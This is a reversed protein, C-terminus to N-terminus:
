QNGVSDGDGYLSPYWNTILANILDGAGLGALATANLNSPFSQLPFPLGKYFTTVERSNVLKTTQVNITLGGIVFGAVTATVTRKAGGIVAESTFPKKNIIHDLLQDVIESSGATVAGITPKQLLYALSSQGSPDFANVPNNGCHTYKHLSLPDSQNGEYSDQTWFRGTEPNHYPDRFYARFEVSKAPTTPTSSHLTAHTPAIGCWGCLLFIFLRLIMKNTASFVVGANIKM